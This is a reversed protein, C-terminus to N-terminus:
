QFAVSALDEILYIKKLAKIFKAYRNNSNDGWYPAGSRKFTVISAVWRYKEGDGRIEVSGIPYKVKM